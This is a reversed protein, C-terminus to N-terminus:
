KGCQRTVGPYLLKIKLDLSVQIPLTGPITEGDLDVPIYATEGPPGVDGKIGYPGQRGQSIPM